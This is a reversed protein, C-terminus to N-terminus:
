LPPLTIELQYDTAINTVSRVEISYEQAAPLVGSWSMLGAQHPLLVTGDAGLIQLVASGQVTTLNVSLTQGAAAQVVYTVSENAAVSGQEIASTSGAPFVIPNPQPTTAAGSVLPVMVTVGGTTTIAPTAAAGPQCENRFLAWEECESGDPFQCYGVEGNADTRIVLDGGRKVCNASAPNPMNAIATAPALPTKPQCESRFFAWEECESGDTFKCYGAEGNAEKRIELAGGKEVCYASAPNPAAPQPSPAPTSSCGTVLLVTVLVVRLAKM